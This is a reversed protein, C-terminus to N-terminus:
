LKNNEIFECLVKKYLPTRNDECDFVDGVFEYDIRPTPFNLCDDLQRYITVEDHVMLSDKIKPYVVSRLFTQDSQKDLPKNYNDMLEKINSLTGVKAGWMGALIEIRHWPHDRMIHFSKDSKLWEDVANKERINLRSDTDRSIMVEVDEEGSPLFRWYTSTWDCKEGRMRVVESNSELKEIIDNPVDDGVYFRCIWGPYIDEVLESNRVAGITYKVDSGWLSFSIIKKM